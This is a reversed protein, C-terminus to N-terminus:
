QVVAGSSRVVSERLRRSIYTIEISFLTLFRKLVFRKSRPSKLEISIVYIDLRNLSLTTLLLPATTCYSEDKLCRWVHVVYRWVTCYTAPWISTRVRRGQVSFMHAAATGRPM